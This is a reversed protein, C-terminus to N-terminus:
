YRVTSLGLANLCSKYIPHPTVSISIYCVRHWFPIYNICEGYKVWGMNYNLM